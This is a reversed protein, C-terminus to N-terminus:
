KFKTSPLCHNLLTYVRGGDNSFDFPHVDLRNPELRFIIPFLLCIIPESSHVSLRRNKLSLLIYMRDDRSRKILTKLINILFLRYVTWFPTWGIEMKRSVFPRVDSWKPEKILKLIKLPNILFPRNITWFSTCGIEMLQSVFLVNTWNM